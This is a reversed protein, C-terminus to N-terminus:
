MAQVLKMVNALVETQIKGTQRFRTFDFILGIVMHVFSEFVNVSSTKTITNKKEHVGGSTGLSCNTSTPWILCM